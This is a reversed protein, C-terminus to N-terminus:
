LGLTETDNLIPGLPHSSNQDDMSVDLLPLVSKNHRHHHHHHHHEHQTNHELVKNFLTSNEYEMPDEYVPTDRVTSLQGGIAALVACAAIFLTGYLYWIQRDRSVPMGYIHVSGEQDTTVLIRLALYLPLIFAIASTLLVGSWDLLEGISDGQYLLWSTFWPIWVVILNATWESCLGSHTLNYRTLVCFLPIDLGIIFFAFLSAAYQIGPGFAGSIMPNLMNVNVNPIALAGLAGVAVYLSASITTSRYVVKNVSVSHKKDHLWAPIALVLGFNFLIVGFMEGWQHGWWSVRDLSLDGASFVLCFYVSISLLVTFGYIQWIASEKLDMLCVPLFVIATIVYGLTLMHNGYIMGDGFPECVGQKVERRSCPPHSWTQFAFDDFNFGVSRFHFGLFSDVMESTDVIAAVNTCTACLFFLVQTINYASKNWFLRFPDSFEVTQRFDHNGPVQSVVNAMHLSCYSSLIGVFVVCVTTPILGSQQYQYPLQLIAPGALSNVAIAISGLM